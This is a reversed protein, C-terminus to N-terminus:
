TKKVGLETLREELHNLRDVGWYLEKEYYFASGFYYGSGDRKNNGEKLIEKVKEPSSSYNRSLNILENKNNQWLFDSVM